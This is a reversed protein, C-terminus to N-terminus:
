NEMIPLISLYHQILQEKRKMDRSGEVRVNAEYIGTALLKLIRMELKEISHHKVEPDEEEEDEGEDDDTNKLVALVTDEM